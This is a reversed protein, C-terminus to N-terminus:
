KCQGLLINGPFTHNYGGQERPGTWLTLKPNSYAEKHKEIYESTPFNSPSCSLSDPSIKDEDQYVRVYDILMFYPFNEQIVDWNIWSFSTSLGLNFLVYMPEVPVLREQIETENNPGIARGDVSVIPEGSAFWTIYADAGSGPNYEFAYVDFDPEHGDRGYQYVWDTTNMQSSIAQQFANGTYDNKKAGHMESQNYLHLYESSINYGPDFPAVQFSLSLQGHSDEGNVGAGELLDIEPASRGVWTGDPHKPGPHDDSEPCTCRSLRQGPLYSLIPGTQDVYRGTTLAALPGGGQSDLYTQNPMTGVDCSDYSYPWLGDTSAGYGARGLNGMTWVAPWLGSVNSYGPLQMRVEFYGGTFCFRNWSSLLGARFLMNHDPERRLSIVLSGNKTYIQDPDYWNLNKTQWYNLDEAQFFPDDGPYFSRGPQNFEDSFVLRMPKKTHFNSRTHAEKPTDPDILGRRLFEEGDMEPLTGPEPSLNGYTQARNHANRDTRVSRLVPYGLFLMLVSLFILLITSMNTFGRVSWHDKFGPRQEDWERDAGHLEDIDDLDDNFFVQSRYSSPLVYQDGSKDAFSLASHNREMYSYPVQKPGMSPSGGPGEFNDYPDAEHSPGFSDGLGHQQSPMKVRSFTPTEPQTPRRQYANDLTSKRSIVSSRGYDEVLSEMDVDAPRQASSFTTDIAEDFSSKNKEAGGLPDDAYADLIEDQSIEPQSPLPKLEVDTTSDSRMLLSRRQPPGETTRSEHGNRPIGSNRSGSQYSTYTIRSPARAVALNEVSGGYPALLNDVSTASTQSMPLSVDPDADATGGPLSADRSLALFPPLSHSSPAGYPLDSVPQNDTGFNMSRFPTHAHESGPAPSNLRSSDGLAEGMVQMSGVDSHVEYADMISEVDESRQNGDNMDSSVDRMLPQSM